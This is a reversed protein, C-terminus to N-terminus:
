PALLDTVGNSMETYKINTHGRGGGGRRGKVMNSIVEEKEWM